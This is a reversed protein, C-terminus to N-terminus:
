DKRTKETTLFDKDPAQTREEEIQRDLHDEQHPVPEIAPAQLAQQRATEREQELAVETPPRMVKVRYTPEPMSVGAEQLALLARRMAESKVKPYSSDHQNVWGFFHATVTSDGLKDLWAEAPPAEIVGATGKIAEVGIEMARALDEGYAVGVTFDFRRHPNRSFNRVITKYVTANPIRVHNGDWTLIVTARSTLRLIKGEHGEILVIDHPLFPQRLSLLVGAVYNEAIDRFALGLVLGVIGATGLVASVIGVADLLQLAIGLGVVLFGFRVVQRMLDRVFENSSLKNFLWDWCALYKGLLWFIVIALAAVLLLPTFAAFGFLMERLEEGTSQLRRSLNHAVEIKNEVTVVGEVRRVLQEAEGMADVSYVEGTLTVIGTEVTARVDRFRELRGFTAEIRELIGDDMYTAAEAAVPPGVESPTPATSANPIGLQGVAAAASWLILFLVVATRQFMYQDKKFFSNLM